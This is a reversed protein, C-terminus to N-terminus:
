GQSESQTPTSEDVYGNCITHNSNTCLINVFSNNIEVIEYSHIFSIDRALPTIIIPFPKKVRLKCCVKPELFLIAKPVQEGCSNVVAKQIQGVEM